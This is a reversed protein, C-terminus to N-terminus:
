SAGCWDASAASRSVCSRSPSPVPSAQSGHVLPTGSVLCEQIFSRETLQAHHFSSIDKPFSIYKPFETQLQSALLVTTDQASGWPRYQLEVQLWRRTTEKPGPSLDEQPCGIGLAGVRTGFEVQYTKGGLAVYGHVPHVIVGATDWGLAKQAPAFGLRLCSKELVEAIEQIKTKPQLVTAVQVGDDFQIWRGEVDAGPFLATRPEFATPDVGAALILERGDELLLRRREDDLSAVTGRLEGGGTWRVCASHFRSHATVAAELAAEARRRESGLRGVREIESSSPELRRTGAVLSAQQEDWRRRATQLRRHVERVVEALSETAKCVDGRRAEAAARALSRELGTWERDGKAVPRAASPRGEMAELARRSEELWRDPHSVVESPSRARRPEEAQVGAALLAACAFIWGGVRPSGSRM